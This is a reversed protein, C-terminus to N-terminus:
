AVREVFWWLGLAAIVTSAGYVVAPQRAPQQGRSALRDIGLLLALLAAVIVLQGLEVGINFAALAPVLSQKPLGAQALVGAFGFGHVLGLAGTSRWRRAVDRSLFNEAAVWIISAAIAPEVIWAPIRVVELAALTLTISHAVTFATVIMVLAGLRRAWLLVAVLFAVHDFGLFIHEVGLELYRWATTLRPPPEVLNPEVPIPPARSASLTPAPPPVEVAPPSASASAIPAPVAAQTIAVENRQLDLIAIEFAATGRVLQVSQRAAQDFDLMATSRYVIADAHPCAFAMVVVIGGDSEASIEIPGDPPCTTGAASVSTRAAYYARLRTEAFALKQPDVMGSAHDTVNVGAARDVDSSTITLTVQVRTLDVRVFAVAFNVAHARASAPLGLLLAAIMGVLVAIRGRPM